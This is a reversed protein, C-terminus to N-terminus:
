YGDWLNRGRRKVESDMKLCAHPIENINKAELNKETGSVTRGIEAGPAQPEGWLRTQSIWVSHKGFWNWRKNAGWGASELCAKM